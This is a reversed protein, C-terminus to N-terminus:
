ITTGRSLRSLGIGIIGAIWMLLLPPSIFLIGARYFSITIYLPYLIMFLGLAFVFVRLYGGIRNLAARDGQLARLFDRIIQQLLWSRQPPPLGADPLRIADEGNVM